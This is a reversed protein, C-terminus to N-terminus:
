KNNLLKLINKHTSKFGPSYNGLDINQLYAQLEQKFDPEIKCIAYLIKMSLAQVAIASKPSVMWDFCANIFEVPISSPLEMNSIIGLCGRQLGANKTSIALSSLEIFHRETYWEPHKDSIRHCAWAARWRVKEDLEFILQYVINFDEPQAFIELILQDIFRKSLPKTLQESYNM